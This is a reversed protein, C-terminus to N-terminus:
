GTSSRTPSAEVREVTGVRLLERSGGEGFATRHSGVAWSGATRVIMGPQPSPGQTAVLWEPYALPGTVDADRVEALFAVEDFTFGFQGLASEALARVDDSAESPEVARTVVYSDPPGRHDADKKRADTVARVSATSLPRSLQPNPTEGSLRLGEEM